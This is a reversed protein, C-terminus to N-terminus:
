FQLGIISKVSGINREIDLFEDMSRMELKDDQSGLKSTNCLGELLVFKQNTMKTSVTYQLLGMVVAPDFHVPSYEAEDFEDRLSSSLVIDRPMKCSELKAGWETKGTIHQKIIQYASIYLMNYKIALNSCTTDIGLRKEHNILIVQPKFKSVLDKKTTELSAKTDLNLLQVRGANQKYAGIVGESLTNYAALDDKLLAIQDEGCEADENLKSWRTQIEAQDEAENSGATLSLVFTPLGFQEMFAVFAAGDPHVIGDFILKGKAQAVAKCIAEETKPLPVDGEFPEEETGLSKKVEERIAKMDVLTFDLSEVMYKALTTKGAHARGMMIGYDTKNGLKENFVSYDWSNMTQLRFQKQFLSDINFLALNNSKIEIM